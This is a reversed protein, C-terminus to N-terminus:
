RVRREKGVFVQSGEEVYGMFAGGGYFVFLVHGVLVGRVARKPLVWEGWSPHDGDVEDYTCGLASLTDRLQDYNAPKKPM